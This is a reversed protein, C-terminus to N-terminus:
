DSSCFIFPIVVVEHVHETHRVRDTESMFTESCITVAFGGPFEHLHEHEGLEISSDFVDRCIKLLQFENKDDMALWFYLCGSVCNDGHLLCLVDGTFVAACFKCKTKTEAIKNPPQQVM